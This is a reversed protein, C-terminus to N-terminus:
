KYPTPDRRRRVRRPSALSSSISQAYSYRSRNTMSHTRAHDVAANSGSMVSPSGYHGNTAKTSMVPAPVYNEGGFSEIIPQSPLVPLAPPSAPVSSSPRGEAEPSKERLLQGPGPSTGRGTLLDNSKSRRIFNGFSSTRQASNARDRPHNSSM